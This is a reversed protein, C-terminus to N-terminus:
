RSGRFYMGRRAGWDGLSSSLTQKTVEPAAVLKSEKTLAVRLVCNRSAKFVLWEVSRRNCCPLSPCFTSSSNLLLSSTILSPTCLRLMLAKSKVLCPKPDLIRAALPSTWQSGCLFQDNRSVIVENIRRTGASAGNGETADYVLCWCIVICLGLDENLTESWKSVGFPQSKSKEVSALVM